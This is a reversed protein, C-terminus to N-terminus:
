SGSGIMALLLVEGSAAALGCPVNCLPLAHKRHLNTWDVDIQWAKNNVSNAQLFRFITIGKNRDIRKGV